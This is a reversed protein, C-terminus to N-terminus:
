GNSTIHRGGDVPFTTGTIWSSKESALFLALEAVDAPTGNRGLPHLPRFREYAAKAQEESFMERGLETAEVLGPAICNIRIGDSAAELAASETFSKVAAKSASYVSSGPNGQLGSISGINIINGSKNKRMHPLVAATLRAAAFTNVAFIQKWFEISSEEVSNFLMIGAANVLIDVGGFRDLTFDILSKIDEELTIDASRELFSQSDGAIRRRTDRLVSERRGAIVVRAGERFFLEATAAGIGTGGGTIVARKNQLQNM